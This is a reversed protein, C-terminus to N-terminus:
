TQYVYISYGEFTYTSNAPHQASFQQADPYYTDNKNVLLCMKGFKGQQNYWRPTDLMFDTTFKGNVIKVEPYLVNEKSLYMLKNASGIDSYGYTLNNQELYGILAYDAKNPQYDYGSIKLLNASATVLILLLVAGLFLTNLNPGPKEPRYALAIVAFVSLALYILFRGSGISGFTTFTFALFVVLASALFMFYLYEAKKNLTIFSYAAVLIFLAGLALDAPSFGGHVVNFLGSNLLEFLSSVFLPLTQGVGGFSATKDTILFLHVNPLFFNNMKLEYGVIAALVVLILATYMKSTEGKRIALQKAQEKRNGSKESGGEGARGNQVLLKYLCYALYPLVFFAITISDSLVILGVVASFAAVAYFPLRKVLDSRYLVLFLGTFLLSGVHYEPSLYLFLAGPQLNTFLAAFLLAGTLSSFKYVLYSFTAAVLFFVGFATLRLVTPDYGSLVQPVFHFTFIDTFLYPDDVPFKIQFNGHDVIEMAVLGPMVTDSNLELNLSYLFCSALGCLVLLLLLLDVAKADSLKKLLPSKANGDTM